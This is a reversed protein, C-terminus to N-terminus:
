CPKNVDNRSNGPCSLYYPRSRSRKRRAAAIWKEYSAVRTYIGPVGRIGCGVGWSVIGVLRRKRNQKVVLPGGSDGTCTDSGQPSGACIVTPYVVSTGNIHKNRIQSVQKCDSPLKHMLHAQQLGRSVFNPGGFRNLRARTKESKEGTMGWGTAILPHNRRLARDRNTNLQIAASAPPYNPGKLKILAIDHVHKKRYNRGVKIKENSYGAHIVVAAIDYFKGGGALSYTGTRIARDKLVNAGDYSLVVCHAATVVWGDGIYSGGCRHQRDFNKREKLFKKSPHNNRLRADAAIEQRTYGNTSYIQVQWPASGPPAPHGKIVRRGTYCEDVYTTEDDVCNEDSAVAHVTTVGASWSGPADGVTTGRRGDTAQCLLRELASICQRNGRAGSPRQEFLDADIQTDTTITVFRYRGPADLSFQAGSNRLTRGQLLAGDQAGTEPILKVVENDPAIGLVYVYRLADGDNRLTILIDKGLEVERRGAKEQPPCEDESYNSDDICVYTQLTDPATRLALLAEVRAIKALEAKFRAAFRTEDVRPNGLEALVKGGATVLDFEPRIAVNRAIEVQPSVGISAFETDAILQEFRSADDGLEERLGVTVIDSAFKRVREIAVLREPLSSRAPNALVLRSSSRDVSAISAIALPAPNEAIADTQNAFLAYTSGVTMGTWTGAEPFTIEGDHSIANILTKGGARGVFSNTLQGEAGPNQSVHGRSAVRLQVEHIIDGYTAHPVAKLAEILESTFVGARNSGIGVELAEEEDQAAALHVWYGTGEGSPLEGPDAPRYRTAMYAPASRTSINVGDRTGTGSHCSDFISVFNVGRKMAMLRMRKLETDLIDAGPIVNPERADTPLITSNFGSSQDLADEDIYRAGHGAFYFIVTDGPASLSITKDLADLIAKRTACDDTLTTSIDNSSQCKGPQPKDLNLDYIESFAQKIHLTDAVAGKLNNFGGQEWYRYKDIGVFVGRVTAQTPEAVPQQAALPMAVLGLFFSLIFSLGVTSRQMGSGEKKRRYM